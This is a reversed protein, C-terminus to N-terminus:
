FVSSKIIQLFLIIEFFLQGGLIAVIARFPRGSSTEPAKMVHKKIVNIKDKESDTM